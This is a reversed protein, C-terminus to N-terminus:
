GSVHSTGSQVQVPFHGESLFYTEQRLAGMTTLDFASWSSVVLRSSAPFVNHSMLLAEPTQFGAAIALFTESRYIVEFPMLFTDVFYIGLM